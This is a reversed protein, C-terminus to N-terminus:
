KKMANAIKYVVQNIPNLSKNLNERLSIYDQKILELYIHTAYNDEYQKYANFAIPFIKYVHTIEEDIENRREQEIKKLDEISIEEKIDFNKYNSNYERLYELYSHYKCLEYTAQTFYQLKNITNIDDNSLNCRLKSNTLNIKNKKDDIQKWITKELEPNGKILKKINWYSSYQIGIIMCKYLNNMNEKYLEKAKGINEWSKDDKIEEYKKTTYVSNQTKYQWCIKDVRNQYLEYWTKEDAFIKYTVFSFWLIILISIIIIKNKKM